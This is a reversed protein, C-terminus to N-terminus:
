MEEEDYMISASYLFVGIWVALSGLTVVMTVEFFSFGLTVALMGLLGFVARRKTTKRVTRLVTFLFSVVFVAWVIFGLVGYVLCYELIFNHAGQNGLYTAAIGVKGTGLLPSKKIEEIASKWFTFRAVDNRILIEDQDPVKIENGVDTQNEAEAAESQKEEAEVAESQKKEAQNQAEAAESQKEETRNQAEATENRSADKEVDAEKGSNDEALPKQDDQEKDLKVSHRISDVITTYNFGRDILFRSNGFDSGWLAGAALFSIALAFIYYKVNGKKIFCILSIIVAICGLVSGARSGSVFFVCSYYAFNFVFLGINFPSKKEHYFFLSNLFVGALCVFVVININLLFQTKFYKYVFLHVFVSYANIFTLAYNVWRLCIRYTTRDRLLFLGLSLPALTRFCMEFSQYVYYGKIMRYVTAIIYILLIVLFSIETIHIAKQGKYEKRDKIYIILNFGCVALMILDSLYLFIQGSGTLSTNLTIPWIFSVLVVFLVPGAIYRKNKVM